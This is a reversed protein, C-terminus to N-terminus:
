MRTLLGIVGEYVGLSISGALAAWKARQLGGAYVASVGETQLIALMSRPAPAGAERTPPLPFKVRRFYVDTPTMHFGAQAGAFAGCILAEHPHLHAPKGTRNRQPSASKSLITAKLPEYMSFQLAMIGLGCRRYFGRFNNASALHPSKGTREGAASPLLASLNQAAFQAILASAAAWSNNERMEELPPKDKFLNYTAFFVAAYVGRLGPGEPRVLLSVATGALGGALLSQLVNPTPPSSTSM